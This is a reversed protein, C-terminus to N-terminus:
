ATADALKCQLAAAIAEHVKELKEDLRVKELELRAAVQQAHLVQECYVWTHLLFDTLEEIESTLERERAYLIWIKLLDLESFGLCRLLYYRPKSEEALEDFEEQRLLIKFSPTSFPSFQGVYLVPVASAVASAVASSM